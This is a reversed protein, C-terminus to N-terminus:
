VALWSAPECSFRGVSFFSVALLSAILKGLFVNGYIELSAAHHKTESMCQFRGVRGACVCVCVRVCMCVVMHRVRLAMHQQSMTYSMTYVIGVGPEGNSSVRNGDSAGIHISICTYVCINTYICVFIFIFICIFLYLFIFSYMFLICWCLGWVAVDMKGPFHDAM